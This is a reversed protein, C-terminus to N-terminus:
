DEEPYFFHESTKRRVDDKSYGEEFLKKRYARIREWLGLEERVYTGTRFKLMLENIRGGTGINLSAREEEPLTKIYSFISAAQKASLEYAQDSVIFNNVNGITKRKGLEIEQKLDNQYQLYKEKYDRFPLPNPQYFDLDMRELMQKKEILEKRYKAYRKAWQIDQSSAKYINKDKELIVFAKYGIKTPAYEESLGSSKKKFFSVYKRYRKVSKKAQKSWKAM